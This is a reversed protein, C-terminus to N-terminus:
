DFLVICSFILHQDPSSVTIIAFVLGIILATSCQNMSIVTFCKENSVLGSLGYHILKVNKKRREFYIIPLVIANFDM